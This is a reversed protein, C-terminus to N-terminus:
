KIVLGGDVPLTVGTVFGADDSALFAIVGAIEAPQAPRGLPVFSIFSAMLDSVDAGPDRGFFQPLM